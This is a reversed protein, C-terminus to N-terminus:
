ASQDGFLHTKLSQRFSDFTLGPWRLGPPLDNWLRPGAASFSRDGLKNHTINWIYAPTLNPPDWRIESGAGRTQSGSGRVVSGTGWLQSGAGKKSPEVVRCLKYKLIKERHMINQLSFTIRWPWKTMQMQWHQWRWVSNMKDFAMSALCLAKFARFGRTPPRSGWRQERGKLGRAQLSASGRTSYNLWQMYANSWRDVAINSNMFCQIHPTLSM